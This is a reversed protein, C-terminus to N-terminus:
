VNQNTKFINYISIPYTTKKGQKNLKECNDSMWYWAHGHMKTLPKDLEIIPGTFLSGAFKFYYIEGIKPNPVSITPVKLNKAMNYINSQKLKYIYIYDFFEM